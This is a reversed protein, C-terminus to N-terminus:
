ISDVEGHIEQEDFRQVDTQQFVMVAILTPNDGAPHRCHRPPPERVHRPPPHRKGPRYTEIPM